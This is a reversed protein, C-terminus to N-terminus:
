QSIRKQEFVKKKFLRSIPVIHGGPMPVDFGEKGDSILDILHDVNIIYERHCQVFRDNLRDIQQVLPRPDFATRVSSGDIYYFECGKLKAALFLIDSKSVIKKTHTNDVLVLIHTEPQEKKQFVKEIDLIMSRVKIDSVPKALYHIPQAKNIMNHVYENGHDTFFVIEGIRNEPVSSIIDFCDGDPLDIDFLSLDFSERLLFDIAEKCTSAVKEVKIVFDFSKLEHLMNDVVAENDEVM